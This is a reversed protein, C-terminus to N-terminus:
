DAAAANRAPTSRGNRVPPPSLGIADAMRVLDALSRAGMKRMAAWRHVKVTNESVGLDSGVQKNLMGATVLTMVQRERPSLAAFRMRLDARRSAILRHERDVEIAACIATLVERERLPKYVFDIAGTKRARGALGPDPRHATMVIPY